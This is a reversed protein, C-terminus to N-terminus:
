LSDGSLIEVPYKKRLENVLKDQRSRSEMVALRQVIEDRVAPLDLLTGAPYSELLKVIRFGDETSRPITVEGPKMMTLERELGVDLEGSQALWKGEYTVDHNQPDAPVGKILRNRLEEVADKQESWYLEVFYADSMRLFEKQHSLYYAMITSDGIASTDVEGLLKTRFLEAKVADLQWRIRPDKALTRREGELLVLETQVWNQVLRWRDAPKLSDIPLDSLSQLGGRTLEAKGVRAVLAEPSSKHCGFIGFAVLLILAVPPGFHRRNM